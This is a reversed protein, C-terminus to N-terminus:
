RSPPDDLPKITIITIENPNSYSNEQGLTFAMDNNGGYTLAFENRNNPSARVRWTRDKYRSAVAYGGSERLWFGQGVHLSVVRNVLAM